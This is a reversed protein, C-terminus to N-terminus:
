RKTSVLFENWEVRGLFRPMIIGVKKLEIEALDMAVGIEPCEPIIVEVRIGNWNYEVKDYNM